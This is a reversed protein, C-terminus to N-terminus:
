EDGLKGDPLYRTTEDYQMYTFDSTYPSISKEDISDKLFWCNDIVYWIFDIGCSYHKEKTKSNERKVKHGFYGNKKSAIVGNKGILYMVGDALAQGYGPAIFGASEYIFPTIEKNEKDIFGWKGDRQVFAMGGWFCSSSDEYIPPIFIVGDDYM